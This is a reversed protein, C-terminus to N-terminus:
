YWSLYHNQLIKSHTQCSANAVKWHVKSPNVLYLALIGVIFAYNPKTYVIAHMLSKILQSYPVENMQM